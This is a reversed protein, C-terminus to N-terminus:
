AFYSAFPFVSPIPLALCSLFHLIITITKKSGWWQTVNLKDLCICSIYSLEFAGTAKRIFPKSLISNAILNQTVAIKIAVRGWFGILIRTLSLYYSLFCMQKPCSCAVNAHLVHNCIINEVLAANGLESLPEGAVHLLLLLFYGYIKRIGPQAM